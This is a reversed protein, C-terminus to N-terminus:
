ENVAKETETKETEPECKEPVNWVNDIGKKGWMEATDLFLFAHQRYIVHIPLKYLAETFAAYHKSLEMLLESRYELLRNIEQQSMNELPHKNPKEWETKIDKVDIMPTDSM